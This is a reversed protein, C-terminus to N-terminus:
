QSVVDLGGFDGVYLRPVDSSSRVGRLLYVRDGDASATVQIPYGAFDAPNLGAFSASGGRVWYVGGDSSAYLELGTATTVFRYIRNTSPSYISAVSITTTPLELSSTSSAMWSEGNTTAWLSANVAGTSTRGGALILSAGRYEQDPTMYSIGSTIPFNAEAPSTSASPTQTALNYSYTVLSGSATRGYLALVNQGNDSFHGLVSLPSLTSGGQPLATFSGGTGAYLRQDSTVAYTHEGSTILSQLTAGANLGTITVPQWAGEIATYRSAASAGSEDTYFCLGGTSGEASIATFGATFRPLGTATTSQTWTFSHPDRSYHRITVNYTYEAPSASANAGSYVRVRLGPLVENSNLTLRYELRGNVLVGNMPYTRGAATVVEAAVEQSVPQVRLTIPYTGSTYPLPEPNTIAGATATHQIAFPIRAVSERLTASDTTLAFQLIQTDYVRFDELESKSSRCSSAGLTVLALAPLIYTRISRM